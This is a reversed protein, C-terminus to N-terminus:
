RSRVEEDEQPKDKEAGSLIEQYEEDFFSLQQGEDQRQDQASAEVPLPTRDLKKRKKERKRAKLNYTQWRDWQEVTEDEEDVWENFEVSGDRPTRKDLLTQAYTAVKLSLMALATALVDISPELAAVILVAASMLYRIFYQASMYGSARGSPKSVAKKVAIEMMKLRLITFLGGFLVGKGWALPDAFICGVGFLLLCFAAIKWSLQLFLSPTKTDNM